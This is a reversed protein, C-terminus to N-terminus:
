REPPSAAVYGLSELQDLLERDPGAPAGPRPGHGAADVYARMRETVLAGQSCAARTVPSLPEASVLDAADFLYKCDSDYVARRIHRHKAVDFAPNAQLLQQLYAESFHSEAILLSRDFDSMRGLDQALTRFGPGGGGAEAGAQALITRYVDLNSVLPDEVITGAGAGGPYKIVLPVQLLEEQLSLQHSYRGGEGLHEGHDSTIVIMSNDYLDRSRLWALLNGIAWDVYRLEADYFRSLAEGDIQKVGAILELEVGDRTMEPILRRDGDFVKRFRGPPLYPFHPDIFNFFVFFPEEVDTTLFHYKFVVLSRGASGSDAEKAIKVERPLASYPQPLSSPRWAEIFQDFGEAFGRSESVWPNQSIGVTAYGAQKLRRALMREPEGVSFGRRIMERLTMQAPESYAAWTAGHETPLLGSFMSMHAPLTWPATSHAGRYVVADATLADIRPTTHRRYGAYSFHDARATDIVILFINPRSARAPSPGHGHDSCHAVLLVILLPSAAIYRLSSRGL